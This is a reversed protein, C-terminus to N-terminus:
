MITAISGVASAMTRMRALPLSSVDTFRSHNRGTPLLCLPLPAKAAVAYEWETLRFGGISHSRLNTGFFTGAALRHVMSCLYTVEQVSLPQDGRHGHDRYGLWKKIVPYGGLEYQWVSRPVNRLCVRDNIFTVILEVRGSTKSINQSTLSM